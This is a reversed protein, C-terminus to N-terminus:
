VCDKPYCLFNKKVTTSLVSINLQDSAKVIDVVSGDRSLINIKDSQPNYANNTVTGSYIFYQMDEASVNHKKAIRKKIDDTRSKSFTSNQLEVRFLKRHVLHTSLFSLVMDDHDMWTKISALIDNDDLKSFSELLKPDKM